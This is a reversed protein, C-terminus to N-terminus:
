AVALMSPRNGPNIEEFAIVPNQLGRSRIVDRVFRRRRSPVVVCAYAGTLAAKNLAEQIEDGLQNLEEGTLTGGPKDPPADMRDAFTQDWKPSLQVLPLSGDAAQYGEIFQFSLSRRVAETLDEM